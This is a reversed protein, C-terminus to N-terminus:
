RELRKSMRLINGVGNGPQQFEVKDMITHILHVGLGGPRVNDLDRSKISATDASPAFDKLWIVLEDDERDLELIVEGDDIDAYAHRIVNTCAEDIALVTANIFESSCGINKATERVLDRVKQLQASDAPFRYELLKDISM